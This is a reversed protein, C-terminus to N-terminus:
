GGAAAHREIKDTKGDFMEMRETFPVPRLTGVKQMKHIVDGVENTWKLVNKLQERIEIINVSPDRIISELTMTVATM